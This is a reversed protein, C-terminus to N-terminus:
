RGVNRNSHTRLMPVRRCRASNAARLSIFTVALPSRLHDAFGLANASSSFSCPSVSAYRVTRRAVYHVLGLEMQNSRDTHASKYLRRKVGPAQPNKSKIWHSMEHTEPLVGFCTVSGGSRSVGNQTCSGPNSRAPRSRGHLVIGGCRRSADHVRPTELSQDANAEGTRPGRRM